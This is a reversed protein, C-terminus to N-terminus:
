GAVGQAKGTKTTHQSQCGTGTTANATLGKSQDAHPNAAKKYQSNIYKLGGVTLSFIRSFEPPFAVVITIM